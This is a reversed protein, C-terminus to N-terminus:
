CRRRPTGSHRFAERKVRILSGSSLPDAGEWVTWDRFTEKFLKTALDTVAKDARSGFLTPLLKSVIAVVRQDEPEARQVLNLMALLRSNPSTYPEEFCADPIHVWVKPPTKAWPRLPFFRRAKLRPRSMLLLIRPSSM